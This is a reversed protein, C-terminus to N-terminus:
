EQGGGPVIRYELTFSKVTYGEFDTDKLSSTEIQFLDSFEPDQETALAFPSVDNSGDRGGVVYGSVQLVPRQITVDTTKLTNTKPDMERRRERIHKTEVAIESFWLNEPALRSLNWLQRSWIIRDRVIEDITDIKEALQEKQAVLENAKQVVAELEALEERYQALERRTAGIERQTSVFIGAMVLVAMVLVFGSALYPLPTRKVPRLHYPLLNIRIM